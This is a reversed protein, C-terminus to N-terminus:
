DQTEEPQEPAEPLKNLELNGAFTKLASEDLNEGNFSILFRRNVVLMLATEGSNYNATFWGPYGNVDVSRTVGDTSEYEYQNQYVELLPGTFVYDFISVRLSEEGKSYNKGGLSYNFEGYKMTSGEPKSSLKYSGFQDPLFNILERFGVVQSKSLSGYNVPQRVYGGTPDSEDTSEYTEMVEGDNTSGSGSNTNNNKKGEGFLAKDIEMNVKKSIKDKINIQASVGAILGLFLMVFATPKKM